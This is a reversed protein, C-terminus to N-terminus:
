ENEKVNLIIQDDTDEFHSTLWGETSPYFSTNSNGYDYVMCGVGEKLFYVYTENVKSKMLKPFPKKEKLNTAKILKNM